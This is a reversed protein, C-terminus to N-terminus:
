HHFINVHGLHWGKLSFNWFKFTFVLKFSSLRFSILVKEFCVLCWFFPVYVLALRVVPAFPYLRKALLLLYWIFLILFCTGTLILHYTVTLLYCTALSLIWTDLNWYCPTLYWIHSIIILILYWIDLIM